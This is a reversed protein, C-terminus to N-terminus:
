KSDSSELEWGDRSFEFPNFEQWTSINDNIKTIM